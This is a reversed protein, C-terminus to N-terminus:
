VVVASGTSVLLEGDAAYTYVVEEHTESCSSQWASRAHRGRANPCMESSGM